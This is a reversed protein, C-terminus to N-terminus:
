KEVIQLMTHEGAAKGALLKVLPGRMLNVNVTIKINVSGPQIGLKYTGSKVTAAKSFKKIATDISLEPLDTLAANMDRIQNVISAIETAYNKEAAVGARKISPMLVEFAGM